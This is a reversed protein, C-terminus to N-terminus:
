QLLAKIQDINDNVVKIGLEILKPGKKVHFSNLYETIPELVLDAQSYTIQSIHHLLLDLGRDVIAAMHRPLKDLVMHPIVDVAVVVDAGLGRVILSPVNAGAGGDCFYHGNIELPDYLGPFSSSARIATALEMHPDSFCEPQGTLINTALAVFPMKLDKFTKHGIHKRVFSEIPASSFMGKRSIHFSAFDTWKLSQAQEVLYDPSLGAAYMAGVMSGASTGAICYIPINHDSLAKIIGAHAIGRAAGGGLALGLKKTSM